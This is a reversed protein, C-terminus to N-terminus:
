SRHVELRDKLLDARVLFRGLEDTKDINELSTPNQFGIEEQLGVMAGAIPQGFNDVLQGHLTRLERGAGQSGYTEPIGLNLSTFPRLDTTELPTRAPKLPVAPSRDNG